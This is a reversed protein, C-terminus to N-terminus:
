NTWGNLAALCIEKRDFKNYWHQLGQTLMSNCKQLILFFMPNEVNCRNSTYCTWAFTRFKSENRKDNKKWM